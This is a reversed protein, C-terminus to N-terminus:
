VHNQREAKDEDGVLIDLAGKVSKVSMYNRNPDGKTGVMGGIVKEVNLEEGALKINGAIGRADITGQFNSPYTILQDGAVTNHNSHFLREEAISNVYVRSDGSAIRTTFQARPEADKFDVNIWISGRAVDISTSNYISLTGNLHGNGLHITTSGENGSSIRPIDITANGKVVNVDTHKRAHTLSGRLAGDAVSITTMNTHVPGSKVFGKAVRVTFEGIELSEPLGSFDVMHRPVDVEFKPIGYTGIINSPLQIKASVYTELKGTDPTHITLYGNDEEVSVDNNKDKKSTKIDLDIVVKESLKSTEFVVKGFAKTGRVTFGSAVKPEFEFHTTGEFPKWKDIPPFPHQHGDDWGNMRHRHRLGHCGRSIQGLAPGHSLLDVVLLGGFLVIIVKLLRHAFSPRQKKYTLTAPVELVEVEPAKEDAYGLNNTSM